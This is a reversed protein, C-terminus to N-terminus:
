ESTVLSVVSWRSGVLSTLCWEVWFQTGTMWMITCVHLRICLCSSSEPMPRVALQFLCCREPRPLDTNCSNCQKSTLVLTAEHPGEIAWVSCRNPNVQTPKTFRHELTPLFLGATIIVTWCAVCHFILLMWVGIDAVLTVFETLWGLIFCFRCSMEERFM